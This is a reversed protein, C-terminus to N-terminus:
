LIEYVKGVRDRWALDILIDQGLSLGRDTVAHVATDYALEPTNNEGSLHGLVVQRCGTEALRVVTEACEGNSLHGQRSRIRRKLASTYHPNNMLMDPDHNSELLILSSGAIAELVDKRVYGMDTAVSVSGGGGWIRFGVPEQADHPIAFSSISMSGIYFDEGPVFTRRLGRDIAGVGSPMGEWTGETCYVPLHYRRSLVGIGKVHDVHEHTVLIAKLDRAEAGITHLAGEIAKGSLGADILLSDGGCTVFSCNGSSGSYLPCFNM